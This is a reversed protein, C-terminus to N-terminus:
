SNSRQYRLVPNDNYSPLLPEINIGMRGNNPESFLWTTQESLLLSIQLKARGVVIMMDTPFHTINFDHYGDRQMQM